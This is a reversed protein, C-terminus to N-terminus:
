ITGGLPGAHEVALTPDPQLKGERPIPSARPANLALRSNSGTHGKAFLDRTHAYGANRDRSQLDVPKASRRATSLQHDSPSAAAAFRDQM